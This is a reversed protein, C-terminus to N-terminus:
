SPELTFYSCTDAKTFCGWVQEESNMRSYPGKEASDQSPLTSSSYGAGALLAPPPPANPRWFPAESTGLEETSSGPLHWAPRSHQPHIMYSTPLTEVWINM